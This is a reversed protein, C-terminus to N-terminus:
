HANTRNFMQERPSKNLSVHTRVLIQELQDNYSATQALHGKNLMHELYNTRISM